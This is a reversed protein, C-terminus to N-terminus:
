TTRANIKKLEERVVLRDDWPSSQGNIIISQEAGKGTIIVVDKTKALQLAKVIGNRRDTITFLNENKIKGYKQSAVAIDEIIKEPDDNYPDVNSVVVFDALKAAIKGMEYRKTTDRGGGEAGLLVIVKQDGAIKKATQLAKTMSEKEHAYDVIVTFNQKEDILEMRGPIMKLESLGEQIKDLSVQEEKAIIIAPLINSINFEGLIPSNFDHQEVTFSIGDNNTNINTARIDSRNNISYTIKKDAPFSLYYDAHDSDNNAIIIKKILKNNIKKKKNKGLSEFLKGKTIKYKEFSGEHSNLHEPTLNTFVAYDYNIGIHRFQKLGESTTEIVCHTCGNKVMQSMLKHITWRGPMTMHYPNLKEEQGIRINATSIIGTKYGQNLTAWIFNATSTKGKTGTVGIVIMKRSPLLYYYASLLAILYHYINLIKNPILKKM